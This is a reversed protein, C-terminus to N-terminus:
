PSPGASDNTSQELILKAHQQRTLLYNRFDAGAAVAAVAAMAVATAAAAAAAAAAATAMALAYTPGPRM